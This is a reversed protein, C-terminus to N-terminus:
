HSFLFMPENTPGLRLEHGGFTLLYYEKVKKKAFEYEM